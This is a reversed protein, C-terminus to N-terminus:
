RSARCRRAGDLPNKLVDNDSEQLSLFVQFAKGRNAQDRRGQLFPERTRLSFAVALKSPRREAVRRAGGAAEAFTKRAASRFATSQPQSRVGDQPLALVVPPPPAEGSPPAAGAREKCGGSLRRCESM